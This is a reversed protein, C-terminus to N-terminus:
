AFNLKNRINRWSINWVENVIFTLLFLILIFQQYTIPGFKRFHLILEIVIFHIFFIQYSNRSVYSVASMVYKSMQLYKLSWKSILYAAPTTWLCYIFFYINPPYKHSYLDIKMKNPAIFQFHMWWFIIFAMGIIAFVTKKKGLRILNLIYIQSITIAIWPLVMAWRFHSNWVGMQVWFILSAPAGIGFILAGVKQNKHVGYVMLPGALTLYVFLLILWNSSVGGTVLLNSIINKLTPIDKTLIYVTLWYFGLWVVYPLYIRKMRKLVYRLYDAISSVQYNGVAFSCLIFAPVVWQSYSWFIYTLRNSLFYANVHMTMMILMSVARLIDIELERNPPAVKDM